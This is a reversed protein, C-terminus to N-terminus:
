RGRWGGRPLPPPPSAPLATGAEDESSNQGTEDSVSTGDGDQPQDTDDKGGCGFAAFTLLFILLLATAKKMRINKM